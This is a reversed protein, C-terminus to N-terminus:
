DRHSPSASWQSCVERDFSLVGDGCGVDLASGITPSAAGVIIRHYHINLNWRDRASAVGSDRM